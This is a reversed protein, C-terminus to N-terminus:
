LGKSKNFYHTHLLHHAKESLPKGLYEEYLQQIYPNEHSKRVQKGADERYIAEARAKLVEAHGHHLPQGGGGICGGPCAMIEIVHYECQHKRIEELLKRANGLGHAIGVKLEFGNLDISAKRFGDMGRVTEFDVRDLTKGTHIEYVSRLAAEMVGGSAGFIVGAGTSAGLPMDFESDPLSAFDINARKILTALERTSISYDVDPNGDVKFEERDCEYKKALCPMISVVVLKERPIGMKEAWYSKAISGFM